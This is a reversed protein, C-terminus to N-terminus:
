KPVVKPVASKFVNKPDYETKLDVLRDYQSGYIKRYDSDDDSGLSVYSSELINDPDAARLERICAQAWEAAAAENAPDKALAIMELMAHDERAGFVSAENAPPARLAHISIGCEPTPLTANYKAFVSAMAPTYKKFNLPFVRGYVGYTLKKENQEAYAYVSTPAAQKLIAPKGLSSAVKDVWKNAAEHDEGTWTLGLAFVQGAGPFPVGFPQVYLEAPLEGSERWDQYAASFATWAGELDSPDSVVLGAVIEKLPYTKVTTEIVVGFIGGGGRLGTLLEDDGKLEVLEGAPNVLKVSLIQDVGPGHKPSFPGYGGLTAWGTYGVSGVSGVPTVLGFKELEASVNRHLAGGGIKATKSAEDVVVSNLDRLDITLAGHVQSRGATDHGGARVVFDVDNDVAFKILAQVDAASQPQAIAFPQVDPKLICCLKTSTFDPSEPTYLKITPHQQLYDRLAAATSPTGPAM